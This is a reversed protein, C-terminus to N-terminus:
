QVQRDRGPGGRLRDRGPGGKLFDPGSGGFLFDRGKGGILRDRGANGCIVDNGGRGVLKDNGGKGAIVDRGPTGVLRNAGNTGTITSLLGGCRICVREAPVRANNRPSPAGLAFDTASDDRDDVADLATRCRRNISRHISEGAALGDSAGTGKAPDGVPSPNGGQIGNLFGFSVCDIGQSPLQDIFCVAGSSGEVVNLNGAANFDPPAGGAVTPGDAILITRQNQGNAVSTPFQFTSLVNGGNDYTRLYHSNVLNQGPAYMQLEVYDSDPGVGDGDVHVESIKMLHFAGMASPAALLLGATVLAVSIGLTGLRKM